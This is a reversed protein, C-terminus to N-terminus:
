QVQPASGPNNGSRGESLSSQSFAGSTCVQEYLERADVPSILDGSTSRQQTTGNQCYLDIRMEGPSAFTLTAQLMGLRSAQAALDRPGPLGPYTQTRCAASRGAPIWWQYGAYLAGDVDLACPSKVDKAGAVESPATSPLARMATADIAYAVGASLGLVFIWPLGKGIWRTARVGSHQVDDM